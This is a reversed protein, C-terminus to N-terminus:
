PSASEAAPVVGPPLLGLAEYREFTARWLPEAAVIEAVLTAAREVDGNRAHAFIAAAVVDHDRLGAARAAALEEEPDAGAEIGNRRRYAAAMRHLRHLEALPEPHDEVRLDFVREHSPATEATTVVVLGAAQRGRFDGGASEAGDLAALLREALSGETRTFADGMAPWVDNSRLMNGLVSFGDGQLDGAHPVCGVGTHAATRGLRDLFAVQRVDRLEDSAVLQALADAPAAGDQMLALGKPGYGRETFSQTTVVGVGPLVWPCAAGTNFACSQVAVGLEGGKEDWAVISYTM